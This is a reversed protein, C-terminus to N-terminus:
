ATLSRGGLWWEDDGGMIFSCGVAITPLVGYCNSGSMKSRKSEVLHDRFLLLLM